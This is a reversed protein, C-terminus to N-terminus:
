SPAPLPCDAVPSPLPLRCRVVCTACAGLRVTRTAARSSLAFSPRGVFTACCLEDSLTGM